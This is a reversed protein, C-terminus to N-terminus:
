CVQSDKEIFYSLSSKGQLHFSKTAKLLSSFTLLM